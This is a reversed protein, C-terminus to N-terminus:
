FSGQRLHMDHALEYVGQELVPVLQRPHLWFSDEFQIPFVVGAEIDLFFVQKQIILVLLLVFLVVGCGWTADHVQDVVVICKPGLEM